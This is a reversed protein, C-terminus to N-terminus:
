KATVVANEVEFHEFTGHRWLGLGVCSALTIRLLDTGGGNRMPRAGTPPPMKVSLLRSDEYECRETWLLSM